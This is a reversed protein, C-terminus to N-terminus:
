WPHQPMGYSDSSNSNPKDEVEVVDESETVKETDTTPITALLDPFVVTIQKYSPTLSHGTAPYSQEDFRVDASVVIRKTAKDWLQFANSRLELGVLIMKKATPQIKSADHDLVYAQCSFTKFQTANIPHHHGQLLPAMISLPTCNKIAVSTRSNLQISSYAVLEGWLSFPLGSQFFQTCIRGLLTGNFREAVSNAM